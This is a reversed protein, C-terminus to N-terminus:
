GGAPPGADAWGEAKELEIWEGHSPPTPLCPEGSGFGDNFLATIAELVVRAEPGRATFQLERGQFGELTLLGMISLGSVTIEGNSVLVETERGAKCMVAKVLLASPRAYLGYANLVTLKRALHETM